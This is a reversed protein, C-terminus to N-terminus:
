IRMRDSALIDRTWAAGIAAAGSGKWCYCRSSGCLGSAKGCASSTSVDSGSSPEPPSLVGSDAATETVTLPPTYASTLGRASPPTSSRANRVPRPLFKQKRAGTTTELDVRTTTFPAHGALHVCSEHTAPMDDLSQTRCILFCVLLLPSSTTVAVTGSDIAASEASATDDMPIKMSGFLTAESYSNFKLGQQNPNAQM